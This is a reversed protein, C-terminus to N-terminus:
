SGLPQGITFLSHGVQVRLVGSFGGVIIVFVIIFRSTTLSTIRSTGVGVLTIWWTAIGGTIEKEFGLTCSASSEEPGKPFSHLHDAFTDLKVQIPVFIEVDWLPVHRQLPSDVSYETM